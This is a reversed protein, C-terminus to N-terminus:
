NESPAVESDINYKEFLHRQPAFDKGFYKLEGLLRAKIAEEKEKFRGFNYHKGNYHIQSVWKRRDRDWTVGMFGSSNTNLPKKNFCNQQHTCIRLNNKRNDYRVGYIHDVVEGSKIDMITDQIYTFINKTNNSWYGNGDQNWYKEKLKPIDDEDILCFNTQEQNYLRFCGLNEDKKYYNTKKFRKALLEKQLCGCSKTDGRKLSYARVSFIREKNCDCVVYWCASKKGNRELISPAQAVALLKGFRMGTLNNLINREKM